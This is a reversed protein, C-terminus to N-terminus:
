GQEIMKVLGGLDFRQAMQGVQDPLRICTGVRLKAMELCGAQRWSRADHQAANRQHEILIQASQESLRLRFVIEEVAVPLAVLENEDAVSFAHQLRLETLQGEAAAVVQHNRSAHDM